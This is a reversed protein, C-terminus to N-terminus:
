ERRWSKKKDALWADFEEKPQSRGPLLNSGLRGAEMICSHIEIELRTGTTIEEEESDDESELEYQGMEDPDTTQSLVSSDDVESYM